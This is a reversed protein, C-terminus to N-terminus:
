NPSAQYLVLDVRKDFEVNTSLLDECLPPFECTDVWSSPSCCWPWLLARSESQFASPKSPEFFGSASSGSGLVTLM